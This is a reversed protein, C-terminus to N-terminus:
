YKYLLNRTRTFTRTPARVSAQHRAILVNSTGAATSPPHFQSQTILQQKHHALVLGAKGEVTEVGPVVHPTQLLRRSCNPKAKSRICDTQQLIHIKELPTHIFADLQTFALLNARDFALFGLTSEICWHDSPQIAEIM